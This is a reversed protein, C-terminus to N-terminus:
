DVPSILPLALLFLCFSVSLGRLSFSFSSAVFRDGPFATAADATVAVLGSGSRNSPGDGSTAIPRWARSRVRFESLDKNDCNALSLAPEPSLRALRWLSARFWM